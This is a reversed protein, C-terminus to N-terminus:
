NLLDVIYPCGGKQLAANVAVRGHDNIPEIVVGHSEHIHGFVHLRCDNLSSMKATLQRCGVNNGGRTLDLTGYPPTHTLLIETDLPIRSYIAAGEQASAYQFAGSSFQPAAPSGYVKWERGTATTFRFSEYELYHIGAAKVPASYILERAAAREDPPMCEGEVLDNDLALDHNGGIIIKVPHDHEALWLLTTNLNDVYGWSSLDGAHLLVDGPPLVCRRSHNDSICIFRTWLPGPHPPLTAGAHFSYVRAGASELL